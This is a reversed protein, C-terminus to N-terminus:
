SFLTINIQLKFQSLVQMSECCYDICAELMGFKNLLKVAADGRLTRAWMFIVQKSAAAGGEQKAVQKVILNNLIEFVRSDVNYLLNKNFSDTLNLKTM